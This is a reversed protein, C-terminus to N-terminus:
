HNQSAVYPVANKLCNETENAKKTEKRKQKIAM